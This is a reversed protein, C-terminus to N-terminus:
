DVYEGGLEVCKICRRELKKLGELFFYKTLEAFLQETAAIIESDM